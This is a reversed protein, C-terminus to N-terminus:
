PTEKLLQLYQRLQNLEIVGIVVKNQGHRDIFVQTPISRINFRRLLNSNHTDYVDVDVLEVNENFEPYVQNVNRMMEICSNCNTSHFFAFIPKGEKFYKDYQAELSIEAPLTSSTAQNKVLLLMVALVVIGTIILIRPLFGTPKTKSYVYRKSPM